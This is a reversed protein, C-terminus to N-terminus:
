KKIIKFSQTSKRSKESGTYVQRLSWTYSQGDKFTESPITISFERPSVKKKFVLSSELMDYGEYLRFDYYDRDIASGEHPSWKFELSAKGTLDVTETVPAILRPEPVFEDGAFRSIRGGRAAHAGMNFLDSLIFSMMVIFALFIKLSRKM